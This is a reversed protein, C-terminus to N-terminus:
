ASFFNSSQGKRLHMKDERVLFVSRISELGEREPILKNRRNRGSDEERWLPFFLSLTLFRRGEWKAGGVGGTPDKFHFCQGKLERVTWM